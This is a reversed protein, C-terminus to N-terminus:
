KLGDLIRKFENSSRIFSLDQDATLTKRDNFGAKIAERLANLAPQEQRQLSYLCALNYWYLMRTQGIRNRLEKAQSEARKSPNKEGTELMYAYSQLTKDSMPELCKILRIEADLSSKAEEYRNLSMYAAAMNQHLGLFNRDILLGTNFEALAAEPKNMTVYMMGQKVYQILRAADANRAPTLKCPNDPPPPPPIVIEKPGSSVVLNVASGSAVLTNAAPTQNIVSGAPADDNKETITGAKLGDGEIVQTAQNRLKGVVNPVAITTQGKPKPDDVGGSEPVTEGGSSVLDDPETSTSTPRFVLYGVGALLLVAVGILIWKTPPPDKREMLPENCEPCIFDGAVEQIEGSNAKDCNGHNVCKGKRM